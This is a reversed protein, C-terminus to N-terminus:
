RRAAWRRQHLLTGCHPHEVERKRAYVREDFTSSCTGIRYHYIKNENEEIKSNNFTEFDPAFNSCFGM